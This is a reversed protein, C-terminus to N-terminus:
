DCSIMGHGRTVINGNGSSTHGPGAKGGRQYSAARPHQQELRLVRRTIMRGATRRCEPGFAIASRPHLRQGACRARHQPVTAVQCRAACQGNGARPLRCLKLLEGGAESCLTYPDLHQAARCKFLMDGSQLRAPRQARQLRIAAINIHRPQM